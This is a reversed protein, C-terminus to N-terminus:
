IWLNGDDDEEIAFVTNDSLGKEPSQTNMMIRSFQDLDRNYKNLGGGSTGIWLNQNSDEFIVGIDNYGISTSDEPDNKYVTMEHGNYKNLGDQTGIWMYGKFDQLIAKGSSQSLGNDPTLHRFNVQGLPQSYLKGM